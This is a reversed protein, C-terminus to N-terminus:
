ECEEITYIPIFDMSPLDWSWGGVVTRCKKLQLHVSVSFLVPFQNGASGSSLSVLERAAEQMDDLRMMVEMCKPRSQPDPAWCSEILGVYDRNWGPDIGPRKGNIVSVLIQSLALGAWPKSGSVLEWLIVGLSYLDSAPYISDGLWKEPSTWEADGVPVASDVFRYM